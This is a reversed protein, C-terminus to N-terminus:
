MCYMIYYTKDGDEVIGWDEIPSKASIMKEYIEKEDDEIGWENMYSDFNEEFDDFVSAGKQLHKEAESNTCGDMMLVEIDKM